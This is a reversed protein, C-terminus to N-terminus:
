RQSDYQFTHGCEKTHSQQSNMLNGTFYDCDPQYLTGTGSSPTDPPALGVNPNNFSLDSPGTIPSQYCSSFCYSLGMDHPELRMSNSNLVSETVNTTSSNTSNWWLSPDSLGFNDADTYVESAVARDLVLVPEPYRLRRSILNEPCPSAVPTPYRDDPISTQFSNIDEYRLPAVNMLSPNLEFEAESNRRVQLAVADEHLRDGGGTKPGRKFRASPSYTCNTGSVLCRQCLPRSKSCKVKALYCADCSARLKDTRREFSHKKTSMQFSPHGLVRFPSTAITSTNWYPAGYPLHAQDVASQCEYSSLRDWSGIRRFYEPTRSFKLWLEIIDRV